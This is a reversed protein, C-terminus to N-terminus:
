SSMSRGNERKNKARKKRWAHPFSGLVRRSNPSESTSQTLRKKGLAATACSPFWTVGTASLCRVVCQVTQSLATHWLVSICISRNSEQSWWKCSRYTHCTVWDKSTETKDDTFDVLLIISNNYPILLLICKLCCKCHSAYLFYEVFMPAKLPYSARPWIWMYSLMQLLNKFDPNLVVTFYIISFLASAVSQSLITNNM